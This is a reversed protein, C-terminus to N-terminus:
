ISRIWGLADEICTKVWNLTYFREQAAEREKKKQKPDVRLEHEETRARDIKQMLNAFSGRIRAKLDDIEQRVAQDVTIGSLYGLVQEPSRFRLLVQYNYIRHPETWYNDYIVVLRSGDPLRWTEETRLPYGGNEFHAPVDYVDPKGFRETLYRRIEALSVAQAM